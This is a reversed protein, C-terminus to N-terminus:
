LSRLVTFGLLLLGSLVAGGTVGPTNDSPAQGFRNAGAQGPAALLYVLFVINLFPVLLLLGWWSSAGLDHLRRRMAVVLAAAPVLLFSAGVAVKVTENAQWNFVNVLVGILLGYCLALSAGALSYALFRLRGIRGGWGVLRPEYPYSAPLALDAQPTAYPNHQM